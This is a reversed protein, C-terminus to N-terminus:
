ARPERLRHGKTRQLPWRHRRYRRVLLRGGSDDGLAKPIPQKEMVVRCVQRDNKMLRRKSRVAKPGGFRGQLADLVDKLRNDVDHVTQQKGKKLYLLVVVEFRDNAEYRVGGTKAAKLVRALIDRRWASRDSRYGPLVASITHRDKAM